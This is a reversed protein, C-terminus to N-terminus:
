ELVFIDDPFMDFGGANKTEVMCRKNKKVNVAVNEAVIIRAVMILNNTEAM